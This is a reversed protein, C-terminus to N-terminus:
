FNIARSPGGTGLAQSQSSVSESVFRGIKAITAPEADGLPILDQTFGAEKHYLELDAKAEQINVGILISIYSELCEKTLPAKLAQKVKAIQSDFNVGKQGHYLEANHVGANNWGDTIVLMIGNAEYDSELLMKGYNAAAESASIIADSLATMGGPALIGDYSNPDIDALLKYGHVEEVSSEFTSVRVLMNDARPHKKLAKLAAKVAAEMEQQFSATSGSRDLVLDVVTYGSAGLEEPNVATFGFTGVKFNELKADETFKPM